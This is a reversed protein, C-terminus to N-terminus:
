RRNFHDRKVNQKERKLSPVVDTKDIRDIKDFFSDNKSINYMMLKIFLFIRFDWPNPIGYLKV